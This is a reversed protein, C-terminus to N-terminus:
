SNLTANVHIDGAQLVDIMGIAANMLKMLRHGRGAAAQGEGATDQFYVSHFRAKIGVMSWYKCGRNRM